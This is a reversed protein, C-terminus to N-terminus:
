ADRVNKKWFAEHDKCSTRKTCATKVLCIGCPCKDSKFYDELFFNICLEKSNCGYCNRKHTM